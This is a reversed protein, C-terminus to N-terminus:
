SREVDTERPPAPDSEPPSQRASALGRRLGGVWALLKALAPQLVTRALADPELRESLRDLRELTRSLAGLGHDLEGAAQQVGRAAEAWARVLSTVESDLVSQFRDALRRIRAQLCLAGIGVAIFM